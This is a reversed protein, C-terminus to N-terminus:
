PTVRVNFGISRPNPIIAYEIGQTNGTSYSFEPDINPVKTWTFLNRGSLGLNISSSNLRTALKSPLEYNVRVERLKTYSGDYIYPTKAPYIHQFYDESEIAVTNSSGGGVCRFTGQYKGPTTITGSGAGCSATQIGDAVVGPDNYDAERGKLSSELVGAYEGWMNTISFIDGGKKFDLLGYVTWNKFSVTHSWGGTWDPTVNGLNKLSGARTRGTAAVMIRNTASDRLFDQGWLVGYPEGLRAEVNVGWTGGLPITRISDGNPAVYLEAVRSKNSAYNFTTSYQLGNKLQVPIATLGVEVGKNTIRGANIAKSSFGTTPSIAVNYIQNRTQRDYVTADMNVRGNLLGLELGAESSTTLEPKLRPNAIANGLTFQPQGDFLNSSGAFTTALQYPSADNGVKAVSGRLKLFSVYQNRLAPLADTLVVSGSVSPYFYSNTCESCDASKEPLTSSWDNRATGELTAWGNWTLAASGYASNVSRNRTTEQVTPSIAANAPNYIGAVSLGTVGTFSRTFQEFRRSGGATANLRLGSIVDRDATFLVDSNNENVYDQTLWFAGQYSPDAPSNIMSSQFKQDNVLRYIDSGTRVTANMWPMVKYTASINGLIRDRTDKRPNAYQEWFPNNHYNYNWNFERSPSGGNGEASNKWGNKLANIDVQRGFWVFSELISAGNGSYGVGPRNRGTNRVYNVSAQTTLKDNVQVGGSLLASTKSFSNNPIIGTTNDSGVSLRANAKETGASVSATVSATHGTQFFDKVNDPHAVWPTPTCNGTGAGPSNFQCLLRGDLRPGFSQDLGDTGSGGAGDVYAFQGGAGQGYKNQYDPLRGPGELSFYSNVETRTRGATNRGKKTTIVIVGNSARSGYLAAANPGKLITMSEIDDPNLDNTASGLDWGSNASGGNNTKAIPTGDVVWLPTNDGTISNSGRLVIRSSGGQTGSGTIQAGAVKGAIQDIVNLSRTQNLEENNLQQQATGLTSKERTQGLATVVVGTLQTAAARLMLDQTIAAGQLNVAVSRPTYGLRRATLQHEGRATPVTLTYRGDADTQAGVGLATISVTVSQLPMDGENAVRGSITTSQANLTIPAFLVWACALAWRSLSRM